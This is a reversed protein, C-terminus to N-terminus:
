LLHLLFRHLTNGAKYQEKNELLLLLACKQEKARDDTIGPLGHRFITYAKGLLNNNNGGY